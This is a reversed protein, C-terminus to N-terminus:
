RHTCTRHPEKRVRLYGRAHHTQGTFFPSFCQLCFAPNIKLKQSRRASRRAFPMSSFQCLTLTPQKKKANRASLDCSKVASPRCAHYRDKQPEPAEAAEQTRGQNERYDEPLHELAEIATWELAASRAFFVSALRL